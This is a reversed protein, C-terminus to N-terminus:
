LEDNSYVVEVRFTNDKVDLKKAATETVVLIVDKKENGVLPGIVWVYTAKDNALNEVRVITGVKAGNYLAYSKGEDNAADPIWTALGTNTVDSWIVKTTDATSGGKKIEDGGVENVIQGVTVPEDKIKVKERFAIILRQGESLSNTELKNWRKIEDITFKCQELRSIKFLTEGAKVTYWVINDDKSRPEATGNEKKEKKLNADDIMKQAVSAEIETPIFIYQELKLGNTKVDPNFAEIDPVSVKYRKAITYLGQGKEVQHVIFVKNNSFIKLGTSDTRAFAQCAMLVLITVLFYRFYQM